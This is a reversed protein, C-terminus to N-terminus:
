PEGRLTRRAFVMDAFGEFVGAGAQAAQALPVPEVLHSVGDVAPAVRADNPFIVERHLGRADAEASHIRREFQCAEDADEAFALLGGGAADIESQLHLPPTEGGCVM